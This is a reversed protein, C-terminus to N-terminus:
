PCAGIQVIPRLVCLLPTPSPTPSPTTTTTATPSPTPAPRTGVRSAPTPTIAPGPRAASGTREPAPATVTPPPPSSSGGVKVPPCGLAKEYAESVPPDPIKAALACVKALTEADATAIAANKAAAIDRNTQDHRARLDALVFLIVLLQLVALAVIAVVASLRLPPRADTM